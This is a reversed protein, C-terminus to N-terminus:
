LEGNEIRQTLERLQAALKATKEKGQQTEIEKKFAALVKQHPRQPM